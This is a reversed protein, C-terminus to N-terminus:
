ALTEHCSRDIAQTLPPEEHEEAVGLVRTKYPARMSNTDEDFATKNMAPRICLVRGYNEMEMEM